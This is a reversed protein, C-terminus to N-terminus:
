MMKFSIFVIMYIKGILHQTYKKAGYEFFSFFIIKIECNNLNTKQDCKKMTMYFSSTHISQIIKQLVYFDMTNTVGIVMVILM